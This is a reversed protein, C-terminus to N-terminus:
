VTPTAPPTGAGTNGGPVETPQVTVPQETPTSAVPTTPEPVVSTTPSAVPAELDPTPTTGSPAVSGVPAMQDETTTPNVVSQDTVSGGAVPATLDAPVTPNPTNQNDTPNM